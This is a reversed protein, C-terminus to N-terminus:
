IVVCRNRPAVVDYPRHPDALCLSDLYQQRALISLGRPALQTERIMQPGRKRFHLLAARETFM